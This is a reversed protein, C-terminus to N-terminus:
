ALRTIILMRGSFKLTGPPDSAEHDRSYEITTHEVAVRAIDAAMRSKFVSVFEMYSTAPTEEAQEKTVAYCPPSFLRHQSLERIGLVDWVIDIIREQPDPYGASELKQALRARVRRELM